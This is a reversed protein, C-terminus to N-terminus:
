REMQALNAKEVSAVFQDLLDSFQNYDGDGNDPNCTSVFLEGAGRRVMDQVLEDQKRTSGSFSHILIAQARDIDLQRNFLESHAAEFSVVIDSVKYFERAVTVGPNIVLPGDFSTKVIDYISKIYKLNQSNPESPAEDIFIGKVQVPQWSKYTKIDQTVADITRKGYSCYVYGITQVQPYSNLKRIATIYEDDLPDPGSNPNVVITWNQSPHAEIVSYLPDWVGPDPYIYAPFM